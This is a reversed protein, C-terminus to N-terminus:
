CVCESLKELSCQRDRSIYEKTETFLIDQPKTNMEISFYMQYNIIVLMFSM